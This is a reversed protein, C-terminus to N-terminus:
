KLNRKLNYFTTIQTIKDYYALTNDLKIIIYKFGNINGLEKKYNTGHFKNFQNLNLIKNM